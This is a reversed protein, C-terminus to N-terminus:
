DCEPFMGNILKLTCNGRNLVCEHNVKLAATGDIGVAVTDNVLYSKCATKGATDRMEVVALVTQGACHRNVLTFREATEHKLNLCGGAAAGPKPAAVQLKTAWGAGVAQKPCIGISRIFGDNIDIMTKTQQLSQQFWSTAVDCAARTRALGDLLEKRVDESELCAGRDDSPPSARMRAKSVKAWWEFSRECEGEALAHPGIALLLTLAFLTSLIRHSRV